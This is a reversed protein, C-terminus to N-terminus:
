SVAKVVRVQDKCAECFVLDGLLIAYDRGFHGCKLTYATLPLDKLSVRKGEANRVTPVTSKRRKAQAMM